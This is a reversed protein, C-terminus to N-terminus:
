SVGSAKQVLETVLAPQRARCLRIPLLCDSYSLLMRGPKCGWPGGVVDVLQNLRNQQVVHSQMAFLTVEGAKEGTM